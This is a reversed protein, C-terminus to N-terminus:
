IYKGDVFADIGVKSGEGGFGSQRAGGFPAVETTALGTNMVVM